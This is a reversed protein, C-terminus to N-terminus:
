NNKFFNFFKNRNTIFDRHNDLFSQYEDVTKLMKAKNNAQGLYKEWKSYFERSLFTSDQRGNWLYWEAIKHKIYYTIATITNIEDPVAPYGKDDLKINYYSIAVTGDKFNFRLLKGEIISYEYFYQSVQTTQKIVLTNYFTHDALIVPTFNNSSYFKTQTIDEYSFDLTLKPNDSYIVEDHCNCETAIDKDTEVISKICQETNTFNEVKAIQDIATFYKPLLVENNVVTKFVIRKNNIFPRYFFELAEGIWEIVDAEELATGKLERSLKAFIRDVTTYKM